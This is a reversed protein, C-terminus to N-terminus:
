GQLSRAWLGPVMRPSAPQPSAMASAHRSHPLSHGGGPRVHSLLVHGSPRPGVTLTLSTEDRRRVVDSDYEKSHRLWDEVYPALRVERDLWPPLDYIYVRLHALSPPRISLESPGRSHRLGLAVLVVSVFAALAVIAFRRQRQRGRREQSAEFKIAASSPGPSIPMPSGLSPLGLETPVLSM